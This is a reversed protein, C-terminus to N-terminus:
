TSNRFQQKRHAGYSRSIHMKRQDQLLFVFGKCIKMLSQTANFVAANHQVNAIVERHNCNEKKLPLTNKSIITVVSSSHLPKSSYWKICDDIVDLYASSETWIKNKQNWNKAIWIM